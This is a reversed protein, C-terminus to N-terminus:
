VAVQKPRIIGHKQIKYRIVRESVGLQGAARTQNWGNQELAALVMKREVADLRATLASIDEGQYAKIDDPCTM